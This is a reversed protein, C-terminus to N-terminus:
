RLASGEFVQGRSSERVDRLLEIVPRSFEETVKSGAFNKVVLERAISVQCRRGILFMAVIQLDLGLGQGPEVLVELALLDRWRSFAISWGGTSVACVTACNSRAM